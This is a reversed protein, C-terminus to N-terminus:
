QVYKFSDKTSVPLPIVNCDMNRKTIIKAMAMSFADVTDDFAGNPFALLEEVFDGVGPMVEPIFVKGGEVYPSALHVREEKSKPMTKGPKMPIIPIDGSDRLEQVLQAGSSSDEVLMEVPVTGYNFNTVKQRFVRKLAPYEVKGRWQDLLYIGDTTDAWLQLVSYDNHQGPKVATDMSWYYCKVDDPVVRYYRLWERKIISGEPNTPRQMYLAEWEYSGVTSKIELLMKKSFQDPWLAEDEQEDIAPFSLVTWKDKENKLLRGSLDDPHWRTQIVVVRADNARRTYLTSQYFAYIQDRIVMSQAAARNKIPDDVIILSGGRGTVTGDIGTCFYNGRKQTSMKTVSKSDKALKSEPFVWEYPESVMFNRVDRGFDTAFDSSYTTFIVEKTPNRGLFWTPFIRSTTESNHTPLMTKGVLYIGGEVQICRGITPTTRRIAKIGIRRKLKCADAKKSPLQYSCRPTTGSLLQKAELWKTERKEIQQTSRNFVVWEHNEHCKIVEGNTFEIECDQETEPFLHLVRKPNGDLGYVYDGVKLDGHTTWGNPTYVPTDHSLQKGHRPPMNIMLHTIEGREVAELHEILIELHKAMKYHPNMLKIYYRLDTRCLQRLLELEQPTLNELNM